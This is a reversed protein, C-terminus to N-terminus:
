AGYPVPAPTPAPAPKAELAEVKQILRQVAGFLSKVIQDQDLMKVGREDVTLAKPFSARVDDAAWGLARADPVVAGGLAAADWEFRQLPLDRVAAYCAELNAAHANLRFRADANVAWAASTPKYAAGAVELNGHLLVDRGALRAAPASTVDSQLFASVVANAVVTPALAFAPAVINGTVNTQAMPVAYVVNGITGHINGHVWLDGNIGMNGVNAVDMLFPSQPLNHFSRSVVIEQVPM